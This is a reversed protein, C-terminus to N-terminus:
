VRCESPVYKNNTAPTGVVCKWTIIGTTADSTPTLTFPVSKAKATMAVSIVGTATACSLSAVNSNTPAAAWGTIGLCFDTAGNAINEAVTAKAASAVTVGESVRARVTYDSYAPIAIAALIGIIAV